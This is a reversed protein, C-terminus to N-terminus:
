LAEIGQMAEAAFQAREHMFKVQEWTARAITEYDEDCVEVDKLEAFARIIAASLEGLGSLDLTVMVGDLSM